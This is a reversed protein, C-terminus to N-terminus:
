VKPPYQVVTNVVSSFIAGAGKPLNSDDVIGLKLKGVQGLPTFRSTAGVTNSATPPISGGINGNGKLSISVSCEKSV